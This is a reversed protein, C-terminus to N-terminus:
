CSFMAINKSSFVSICADFDIGCREKHYRLITIPRSFLYFYQIDEIKTFHSVFVPSGLLHLLLTEKM